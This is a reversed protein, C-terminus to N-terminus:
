FVPIRSPSSAFLEPVKKMPEYLFIKRLPSNKDFLSAILYFNVLSRKIKNLSIFLIKLYLGKHFCLLTNPTSYLNHKHPHPPCSTSKFLLVIDNIRLYSISHFRIVNIVHDLALSMLM